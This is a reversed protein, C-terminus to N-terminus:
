GRQLRGKAIPLLQDLEPTFRGHDLKDRIDSDLIDVKDYDIPQAGIEFDCVAWIARIPWSPVLFEADKAIDTPTMKGFSGVFRGHARTRSTFLLLHDGMEMLSFGADRHAKLLLENRDIAM